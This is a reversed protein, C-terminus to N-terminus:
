KGGRQVAVGWTRIAGHEGLLSGTQVAGSLSDEIVVIIVLNDGSKTLSQLDMYTSSAPSVAIMRSAM